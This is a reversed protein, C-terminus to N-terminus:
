NGCGNVGSYGCRNGGVGKGEIAVGMVRRVKVANGVMEQSMSRGDGDRDERWGKEKVQGHSFSRGRRLMDETYMARIRVERQGDIHEIDVARHLQKKKSRLEAEFTKIGDNKKQKMERKKKGLEEAM